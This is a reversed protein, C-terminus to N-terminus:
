AKDLAGACHAAGLVVDPAILAAGCGYEGRVFYPADKQGNTPTGGVINQDAENQEEEVVVPQEQQQDGDFELINAASDDGMADDDDDDYAADSGVADDALSSQAYSTLDVVSPFRVLLISVCGLEFSSEGATTRASIGLLVLLILLLLRAGHQRIRTRTATTPKM